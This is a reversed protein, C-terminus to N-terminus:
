RWEHQGVLYRGKGAGDAGHYYTFQYRGGTNFLCDEFVPLWGEKRLEDEAEEATKWVGLPVVFKEYGSSNRTTNNAEWAYCGAAGVRVVAVPTLSVAPFTEKRLSEESGYHEVTALAYPNEGLTSWERLSVVRAM